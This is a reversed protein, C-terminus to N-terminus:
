LVPRAFPAFLLTTASHEGAPLPAKLPRSLTAVGTPSVSTILVDPSGGFTLRDFGTKGPVVQSASAASLAVTRAGEPASQLTTLKLHRAPAPATSNADLVILPRLGHRMLATLRARL